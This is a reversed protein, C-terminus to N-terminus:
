RGTSVAQLVEASSNSDGDGALGARCRRRRCNSARLFWIFQSLSDVLVQELFFVVLGDWPFIPLFWEFGQSRWWM